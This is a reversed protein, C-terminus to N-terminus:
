KALLCSFSVVIFWTGSSYMELLARVMGVVACLFLPLSTSPFFLFEPNIKCHQINTYSSFHKTGM